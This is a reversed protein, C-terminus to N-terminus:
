HRRTTRTIQQKQMGARQLQPLFANSSKPGLKTFMGAHCETMGVGAVECYMIIFSCKEKVSCGRLLSFINYLM